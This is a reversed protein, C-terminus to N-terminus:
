TYRTWNCSCETRLNEVSRTALIVLGNIMGSATCVDNRKDM